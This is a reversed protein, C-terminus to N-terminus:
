VASTRVERVAREATGPQDHGQVLIPRRTDGVSDHVPVRRVPVGHMVGNAYHIGRLFDILFRTVNGM